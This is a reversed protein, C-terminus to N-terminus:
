PFGGTISIIELYDLGIQGAGDDNNFTLTHQSMNLDTQVHLLGNSYVRGPTGGQLTSSSAYVVPPGADISMQYRTPFFSWSFGYVMVATGLTM